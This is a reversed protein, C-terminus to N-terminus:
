HQKVLRKKPQKALYNSHAKIVANNIDAYIKSLLAQEEPSDDNKNIMIFLYGNILPIDFCRDEGLYAKIHMTADYICEIETKVMIVTDSVKFANPSLCTIEKAFAHLAQQQELINSYSAYWLTHTIPDKGRIIKKEAVLTKLLRSVHSQIQDINNSNTPKGESKLVEIIVDQQTM